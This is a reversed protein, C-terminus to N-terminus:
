AQGTPPGSQIAAHEVLVALVQRERLALRLGDLDGSRQLLSRMAQPARGAETALREIERDVDADSVTIEEREALAELLLGRRVSREADPRLEGALRDYDWPLTDPDVGERRLRERAHGIRHGIERTVLAEPVPFPHGALVADVTAEELSRRDQRARQATIEARVADRLAGLSEHTGLSRAFDDDLPPIEKEKM